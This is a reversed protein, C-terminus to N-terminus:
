ALDRRHFALAAAVVAVALVAVLVMGAQPWAWGSLGAAEGHLWAALHTGLFWANRHSVGSAELVMRGGVEWVVAYAVLLGVAAATRRGLVAAAFGLGAAVVALGAGRACQGALGAWFGVTLDGQAGAVHALARFGALYVVTAAVSVALVAGALVGLKAAFVALREPRWLLLHAMGGSALEAGVASAGVLFVVLALGAYLFHLLEGISQSFVFEDPGAATAALTLVMAGLLVLVMVWVLRRAVLRAVEARVLKV